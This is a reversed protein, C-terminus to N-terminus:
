LNIRKNIRILLAIWYKYVFIKLKYQPLKPYKKYYSKKDM